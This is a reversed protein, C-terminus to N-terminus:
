GGGLNLTRQGSGDIRSVVVSQAGVKVVRYRGDVIQGETAHFLAGTAPDKLTVIVRGDPAEFRGTLRLTIAPLGTPQPPGPQPAAVQTEFSPPPPPAPRAGFRFLNRGLSVPGPERALADLRVRQPLAISELSVPDGVGPQGAAAPAQGSAAPTGPGTGAPWWVWAVLAALLALLVFVRRREPGPEPLFRM